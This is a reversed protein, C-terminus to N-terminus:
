IAQRSSITRICDVLTEALVNRRAPEEFPSGDLTTVYFSDVVGDVRTAIKAFLINLGFSSILRTLKYLLGMTDPAFVDIITQRHGTDSTHPHYEVGIRTSPNVEKRIRRKWKARHREYLAETDVEGSWVRQILQTIGHVQDVSLARGDAINVLRFRDVVIGERWTEIKAHIISADCSMFVASVRALFYPADRGLVTAETYSSGSMFLVFVDTTDDIHEIISLEEASLAIEPEEDQDTTPIVEVTGAHVIGADAREGKGSQVLYDTALSRLEQLIVYKWDTWVTPNLASLDAYTLLFLLDLRRTNSVRESFGSLTTRDHYNRRFAVQEMLLHYRVLFRVDDIIDTRGFRRLVREAIDAGVIEHKALDVPKAIDHFLIAYYLVSIDPLSKLMSAIPSDMQMERECREIAILTHEDVTYYHYINHQFFHVLELFEPMLVGLVQLENMKRLTKAVGTKRRLFSDFRSLSAACFVPTADRIFRDLIRIIDSGLEVDHKQYADFVAMVETDTVSDIGGRFHIVTGKRALLEDMVVNKEPGDDFERALFLLNFGYRVNGAHHYYDSMFREVSEKHERKGYGLLEAVTRQLDYELTDHIYGVHVHMVERVCLFFQWARFLAERREPSLPLFGLLIEFSPIEEAAGANVDEMWRMVGYHYIAHIDRLSGMSNKINPELLKLSEGYQNHRDTAYICFRDVAGRFTMETMQRSLMARLSAFLGHDGCVHRSELLALWSRYDVELIDQCEKINRCVVHVNRIRRQLEHVIPACIETVEGDPILVMTDVDSHRVMEKRAYSGLALISVRDWGRVSDFWDRIVADTERHYPYADFLKDM